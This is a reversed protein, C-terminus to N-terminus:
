WEGASITAGLPSQSATRGEMYIVKGGAPFYKALDAMRAKVADATDIIEHINAMAQPFNPNM